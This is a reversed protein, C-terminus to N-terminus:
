QVSLRNADHCLSPKVISLTGKPFNYVLITIIGHCKEVHNSHRLVHSLGIFRTILVNGLQLFTMFTRWKHFFIHDLNTHQIIISELKM